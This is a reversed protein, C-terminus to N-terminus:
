KLVGVTTRLVTAEALDVKFEDSLRYGIVWVIKDDATVLLPINSRISRPLKKNIFFDHLKQFGPGGLPKFVDGPKWFRIKLPFKLKAPNL